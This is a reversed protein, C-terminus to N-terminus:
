YKKWFDDKFNIKLVINTKMFQQSLEWFEVDTAKMLLLYFGLYSYFLIWIKSIKM